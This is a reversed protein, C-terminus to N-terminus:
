VGGNTFPLFWRLIFIMFINVPEEKLYSYSGCLFYKIIFDYATDFCLRLVSVKKSNEPLSHRTRNGKQVRSHKSM